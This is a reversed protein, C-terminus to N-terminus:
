QELCQPCTTQLFLYGAVDHLKYFLIHVQAGFVCVEKQIRSFLYEQSDLLNTGVSELSRPWCADDPWKLGSLRHEEAAELGTDSSAFLCHSM